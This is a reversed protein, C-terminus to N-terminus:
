RPMKVGNNMKIEEDKLRWDKEYGTSEMRNQQVCNEM